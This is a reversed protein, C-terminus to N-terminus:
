VPIYAGHRSSHYLGANNILLSFRSRCKPFPISARRRLTTATLNIPSRPGTRCSSLKQEVKNEKSIKSLSIKMIQMNEMKISSMERTHTEHFANHKFWHFVTTHTCYLYFIFIQHLFAKISLDESNEWRKVWIQVGNFGQLPAHLPSHLYHLCLCYQHFGNSVTFCLKWLNWPKRTWSTYHWPIPLWWFHPSTPALIPFM